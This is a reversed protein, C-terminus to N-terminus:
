QSKKNTQNISLSQSIFSLLTVIKPSITSYKSKCLYKGNNKYVLEFLQTSKIPQTSSHARSLNYM